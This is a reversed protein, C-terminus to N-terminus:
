TETGVLQDGRHGGSPQRAQLLRPQPQLGALVLPLLQGVVFLLDVASLSFQPSSLDEPESSQVADLGLYREVSSFRMWVWTVSWLVSSFLVGDTPLAGMPPPQPHEEM